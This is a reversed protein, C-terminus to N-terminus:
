TFTLICTHAIMYFHILFRRANTNKTIWTLLFGLSNFKHISFWHTWIVLVLGIRHLFHYRMGCIDQKQKKEGRSIHLAGLTAPADMVTVDNHAPHTQLLQRRSQKSLRENLRLDFSDDFSRVVPRQSPFGGTVPPNGECLAPLASFTEM